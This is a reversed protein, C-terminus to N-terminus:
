KEIKITYNVTMWFSNGSIDFLVSIGTKQTVRYMVNMRKKLYEANRNFTEFM